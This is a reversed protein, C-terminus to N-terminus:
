IEYFSKRIEYHLKEALSYNPEEPLTTKKYVSELLLLKKEADKLLSDYDYLGKRINLLYERDLRRVIIENKQAIEIAMDLLRMCHAMNKGDYNKGHSINENYRDQNRNEKWEMYSQYDKLYKKYSDENYYLLGTKLEIFEKPVSSLLLNSHAEDRLIGKLVSSKDQKDLQAKKDYYLVFMDRMHEIRSLGCFKQEYNNNELWKKLPISGIEHIVFCFDLMSKKVEPMPSVIKKNLGRAKKIQAVAYSGFSYQCKKSIFYKQNLLSFLNHKFLICDSPMNLLEMMNPNNTLLLSIFKKLEFYKIDQKDDSVEDILNLAGLYDEEKLIFVGRIDKDSNETNTGYAYSGSIAEFLILNNDKLFDLTYKRKMNNNM